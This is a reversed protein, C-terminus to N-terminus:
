VVKMEVPIDKLQQTLDVWLLLLLQVQVEDEQTTTAVVVVVLDELGTIQRIHQHNM